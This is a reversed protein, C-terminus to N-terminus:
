RSPDLHAAVLSTVYAGGSNSLLTKPTAFDVGTCDVQAYAQMRKASHAARDMFDALIETSGVNAAGRMEAAALYTNAARRVDVEVGYTGGQASRSTFSTDLRTYGETNVNSVNTSTNRLAAQNAQLASLSSTMISSITMVRRVDQPMDYGRTM